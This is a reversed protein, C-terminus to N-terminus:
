RPGPRRDPGALARIIITDARQPLAPEWNAAQEWTTGDGRGTWTVDAM